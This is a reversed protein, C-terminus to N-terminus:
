YDRGKIRCDFKGNQIINEENFILKNDNNEKKVLMMRIDFIEKFCEVWGCLVYNVSETQMIVKVQRIIEKVSLHENVYFSSEGQFKNRIAIEGAVINPLTYVFVSPSPYYNTVDKISQLYALDDNSSASRNFLAIAFDKKPNEFDISADRLMLESVLFGAKSMNDMKFFKPYSIGGTKYINTLINDGFLQIDISKNNVFLCKGDFSASSVIKLKDQLDQKDQRFFEDQLDQKDQRFVVDQRDHLRVLVAANTGGFGSVMKVFSKKDTKITEFTPHIEHKCDAEDCGVSKLILGKSLAIASIITELVGAAGLTHGFFAKLSNVPIQQMSMRNLALAEMEDNYITATGHANIFAIDQIDINKLTENLTNFLGEAEISPASIHRADNRIAGNQLVFKANDNPESTYIITAVAEGLNLGRRNKDFPKCREPSLAKFSQFGSIIFKSLVDGGVVVANKFHKGNLLRLAEVQAAAGSICANSIVLPENKNGFYNSVKKATHWLFIRDDENESLYSVNGKTTSIIFITESSALDVLYHANANRVSAIMLKELFSFDQLDQKDQGFFGDHLDQEDQRFICDQRFVSVYCAEPLGFMNEHRKLETKGSLVAEFNEESTAGLPSIINHGVCYIM